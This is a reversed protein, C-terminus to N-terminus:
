FYPKIPIDNSFPSLSLSIGNKSDEIAGNLYGTVSPLITM